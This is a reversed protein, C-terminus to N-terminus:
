ALRARRAEVLKLSVLMAGLAAGFLDLYFAQPFASAPVLLSLGAVVFGLRAAPGLPRLLYGLFGASAMWVGAVASVFAIIIEVAGGQMLLSPSYVFLFPVVFATWGLRCATWGTAMPEGGSISAATFAAFAVPPTIMSLIGYYLVFMHASIPSIGLKVLPPAALTALLLYIGATPMGMGLLICVGATVLLLGILSGEGFQVLVFSLAFGLGTGQLVGIVIGAMAGIVIIEVSAQGTRWIVSWLVALTMRKGRYSIVSSFAIITLSAAFASEEPTRYFSFLLVVLVVFPLAFYWGTRLVTGLRPIQDEPVAAIGKRAAELDTLVFVGVYYLIAPLLAALLVETYAIELFEAMLFAAAGMVPPMIQGGTSAVAEVAGAVERTFGAQRMMPITIVGTSAVNSVASGSITGFLSSAVVAIKASGGRTRGMLASSLDTFWESGGSYLLLQGMFIFLVVVTCIVKMPLGIIGVTDFALFGALEVVNKPRGELAGPVLHGLLGYALFAVAIVVLSPGVARRLGELTLAVLVTGVVVGEVPYYVYELSLIPYRVAIFVCACFGLIAAATDYWPVTRRETGHRAPMSLFLLAFTLGLIVALAQETFLIFGLKIPLDVAWVLAIVTILAGFAPTLIRLWRAPNEGSDAEDM